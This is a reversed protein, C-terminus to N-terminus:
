AATTREETLFRAIVEGARTLRWRDEFIRSPDTYTEALGHAELEHLPLGRGVLFEAAVGAEGGDLLVALLAVHRPKVRLAPM